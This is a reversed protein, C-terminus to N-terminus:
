MEKYNNKNLVFLAEQARASSGSYVPLLGGPGTCCRPRRSRPPDIVTSSSSSVAGATNSILDLAGAVPKAVMGLAGTIAGGMIGQKFDIPFMVNSKDIDSILDLAGAVPEAVM